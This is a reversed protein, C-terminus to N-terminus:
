GVDVPTEMLYHVGSLVTGIIVFYLLVRFVTSRNYGLFTLYLYLPILGAALSATLMFWLPQRANDLLLYVIFRVAGSIVVVFLAQRFSFLDDKELIIILLWLLAAGGLIGWM